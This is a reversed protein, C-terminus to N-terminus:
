WKCCKWIVQPLNNQPWRFVEKRVKFQFPPGQCSQGGFGSKLDTPLGEKTVGRLGDRARHRTRPCTELLKTRGELKTHRKDYEEHQVVNRSTDILARRKLLSDALPTLGQWRAHSAWLSDRVCVNLVCVCIHACWPCTCTRVRMHGRSVKKSGLISRMQVRNYDNNNCKCREGKLQLM